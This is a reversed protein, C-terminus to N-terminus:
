SGKRLSLYYINAHGSLSRMTSTALRIFTNDSVESQGLFM